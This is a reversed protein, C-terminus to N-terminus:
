TVGSYAVPLANRMGALLKDADQLQEHVKLDSLYCGSYIGGSYEVPM